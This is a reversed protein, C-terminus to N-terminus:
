RQFFHITCGGPGSVLRNCINPPSHCGLGGEWRERRSRTVLELTPLFSYYMRRSWVCTQKMHQPPQAGWVGGSEGRPGTVLELTPLFSYYMRRSWVCTQQMHQPATGGWVGGEGEETGNCTRVNSYIFLVDEQVLCLNTAYAPHATGGGSGGRERRRGTVLELTPLFSYYM